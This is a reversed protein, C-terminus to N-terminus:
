SNDWDVIHHDGIGLELLIDGSEPHDSFHDLDDVVLSDFGDGDVYMSLADKLRSRDIPSSQEVIANLTQYARGIQGQLSYVEKFLIEPDIQQAYLCVAGRWWDSGAYLAVQIERNATFEESVLHEQFRFHGFGFEQTDADLVLVNCPDILEALCKEVLYGEMRRMLSRKALDLLGKWPLSRSRNAHLEFAVRRAVSMLLESTQKQRRIGKSEDYAGTLLRLREYYIERENSVVKIGKEALSCAITALL